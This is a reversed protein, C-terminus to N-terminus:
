GQNPGGTNSDGSRVGSHTHTSYTIGKAVMEGTITCNGGIQVNGTIETEPATVTVKTPATINIDSDTLEIFVSPKKGWFGGLYFGDSMDFCRHSNAPKETNEGNVGSCDSQAFVALGIDGVKPDCIVASSGFQYRFYPLKPISVGPLSNNNADRQMILPKASVYGAGSGSGGAEVGTVVVPIATNIMGKIQSDIVYSLMNFVSGSTYDSKTTKYEQDM